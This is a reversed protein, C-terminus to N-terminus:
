RRRVTGPRGMWVEDFGPSYHGGLLRASEFWRGTSRLLSDHEVHGEAARCSWPRHWVDFRRRMQGRQTFATYRELLFAERTGAVCTSSEAGRDICARYALTACGNAETVRGRMEDSSPDHDYSLRGLRYPLGYIRPGLISNLRKAVWEALFYIGPEDNCCVYTRLNLFRETALPACLWAGVRGGIRPRMGRLTFAVASVYACGRFLDLEFPVLDRLAAPEVEYHLFVVDVWRFIFMPEGAREVLRQRAADNQVAMDCPQVQGVSSRACTETM